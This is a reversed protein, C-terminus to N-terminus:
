NGLSSHPRVENYDIRGAECKVRAYDLSLFWFANLCESGVMEMMTSIMCRGVSSCRTGNSALGATTVGRTETATRGFKLAGIGGTMM